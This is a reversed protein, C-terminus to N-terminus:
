RVFRYMSYRMTKQFRETDLRRPLKEFLLSDVAKIKRGFMMRVLKWIIPAQHKMADQAFTYLRQGYDVLLERSVELNPLVEKTVDRHLDVRFGCREARDVFDSELFCMHYEENPVLQFFDAAVVCSGPETLEVCKPWLEGKSIYQPSESFFLCDYAKGPSFTEFITHHFPVDPGCTAPFVESHYRDPSLGEVAFGAEKMHKSSVGSGCGVDLVSKVGEPIMGVLAKTYEAQAQRVGEVTVPIDDRFLGFHLADLKL